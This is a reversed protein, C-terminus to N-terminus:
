SRLLPKIRSVVDCEVGAPAAETASQDEDRENHKGQKRSEIESAMIARVEGHGSAFGQIAAINFHSSACFLANSRTILAVAGAM